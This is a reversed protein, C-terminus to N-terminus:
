DSLNRTGPMTRVYEDFQQAAYRRVRFHHVALVVAVILPVAFLGVIPALEHLQDSM